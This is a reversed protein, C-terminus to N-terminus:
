NSSSIRTHKHQQQLIQVNGLASVTRTINLYTALRVFTLLVVRGMSGLKRSEIQKEMRAVFPAM